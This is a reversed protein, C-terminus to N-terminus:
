MKHYYQEDFWDNETMIQKKEAETLDDELNFLKLIEKRDMYKLKEAIYCCLLDLLGDCQLYNAMNICDYLLEDSSIMELLLKESLSLIEHLPKYLPKHIQTTKSYQKIHIYRGLVILVELSCEINLPLKVYKTDHEDDIFNIDVDSLMDKIAICENVLIDYDYRNSNGNSLVIEVFKQTMKM